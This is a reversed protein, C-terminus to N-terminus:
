ADKLGDIYIPIARKITYLSFHILEKNIYDTLPVDKASEYDM